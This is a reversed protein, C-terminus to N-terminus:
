RRKITLAVTGSSADHTSDGSYKAVVTKKGAYTFAADCTAKGKVVKATCLKRKSVWFTVTGTPSGTSTVTASLKVDKHILATKPSASATTKSSHKPAVAGKVTLTETASSPLAYQDGSYAAEIAVSGSTAPTYTCTAINDPDVPPAETDTVAVNACGPIAVGGISFTVLDPTASFASSLADNGQDTVDATLTVPDGATATAPSFTLKTSTIDWTVLKHDGSGLSNSTTWESDATPTYAAEYLVFGYDGVATTVTCTATGNVLTAANAGTCELAAPPTGPYEVLTFAVTGTPVSGDAATVTATVTFSQGAHVYSYVNAAPATVTTTTAVSGPDAAPSAMAPLASLACAAVAVATVSLVRIIGAGARHGGAPEPNSAVGPPRKLRM